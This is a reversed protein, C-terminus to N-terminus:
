TGQVAAAPPPNGNWFSAFHLQPFSEPLLLPQDRFNVILDVEKQLADLSGVPIVGHETHLRQGQATSLDPDFIFITHPAARLKDLLTLVPSNRVDDCGLKTTIGYLGLRSYCRTRIAQVCADLHIHNSATVAALIPSESPAKLAQLAGLDKELCAGGFAFGPRLYASSLNLKTDECLIQLVAHGDVHNSHALRAAENAFAIKLAHFANNTLKFFEATGTSVLFSPCQESGFLPALVATSSVDDAGLVVLSPHDFDALAHGERLFEPVMALGFDRGVTKGSRVELLPCLEDRTFNVPVTSRVIVTEYRSTNHIRRAVAIAAALVNQTSLKGCSGQPTSLCLISADCDTDELQSPAVASLRGAAVVAAVREALGPERFYVEGENLRAVREADIDVGVVCHGRHALGAACVLGAYGLGWVHAKM